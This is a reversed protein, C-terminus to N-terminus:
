KRKSKKGGKNPDEVIRPVALKNINASAKYLLAAQSVKFKIKDNDGKMFKRRQLRTLPAALEITRKMSQLKPEPEKDIDEFNKRPQSLKEYYESGKLPRSPFVYNVHESSKIKRPISLREIYEKNIPRREEKVM